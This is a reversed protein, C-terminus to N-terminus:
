REGDLILKEVAQRVVFKHKAQKRFFRYDDLNKKLANLTMRFLFWPTSEPRKTSQMQAFRRYGQLLPRGADLVNYTPCVGRALSELCLCNIVLTAFNADIRVRHKRILSLVGRLVHGVDVNTGYGRCREQFLLVMDAAFFRKQALSMSNRELSFQLTYAAAEDGNGEGLSSLLGIFASSEEDTLKVVMGADVLTIRVEEIATDDMDTLVDYARLVKPQDVTAGAMRILRKEDNAVRRRFRRRYKTDVVINGPHLDAHMKLRLVVIYSLLWDPIKAILV